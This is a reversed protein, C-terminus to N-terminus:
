VVITNSRKVESDEVAPAFLYKFAGVRFILPVAGVFILGAVSRHEIVEKIQFHDGSVDNASFSIYRQYFLKFNSLEFNPFHLLQSPKSGLNRIAVSSPFFM